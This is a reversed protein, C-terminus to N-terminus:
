YIIIKLLPPPLFSERTLLGGKAPVQSVSLPCKCKMQSVEVVSRMWQNRGWESTKCKQTVHDALTWHISLLQRIQAQLSAEIFCLSIWQNEAFGKGIKTGKIENWHRKKGETNEESASWPWKGQLFGVIRGIFSSNFILVCTFSFITVRKWDCTKGHWVFVSKKVEALRRPHPFNLM